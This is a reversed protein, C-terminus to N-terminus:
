DKETTTPVPRHDSEHAHQWQDFVWLLTDPCFKCTTTPVAWAPASDQETDNSCPTAHVRWVDGDADCYTTVSGCTGCPLGHSTSVGGVAARPSVRDNLAM